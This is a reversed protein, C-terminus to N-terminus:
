GYLGRTRVYDLVARPLIPAVADWRKAALHERVTTSSVEPLLPAPASPHTVGQRGLVILPALKQVKDFRFWKDAEILIDAGIVFRPSWDPHQTKLATLMHLTLGDLGQEIRSVEVRDLLAVALECMRVRDDFPALPKGFPHKYAPVLAVRDVECTSLVYTAALVHGIHPPNFSGGFVAVVTM